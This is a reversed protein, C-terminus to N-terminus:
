FTTVSSIIIAVVALHVCIELINMTRKKMEVERNGKNGAEITFCM